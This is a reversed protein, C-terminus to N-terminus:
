EVQLGNRSRLEYLEGHIGSKDIHVDAKKFISAITLLVIKLDHIFTLNQAYHLDYSIKDHISLSNRGKAQALGTIGPLVDHRKRQAPTMAQYYDPLWPRPGIFSMEGKIINILQPIEDLSLLRLWSGIATVQNEKALDHVSNNAHMTRFKYITFNKGKHGTREQKFLIPRGSTILIVLAVLITIPLLIIFLTISTIIDIPKKVYSRYM